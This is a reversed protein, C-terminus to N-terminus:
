GKRAAFAAAERGIEDERGAFFHDAGSVLRLESAGPLGSVFDQLVGAGCFADRDGHVFLKPRSCERLAAPDFMTLPLAVLVLRDVRPDASGAVAAVIAGFSYGCLTVAGAGTEAALFGVAAAADATEAMTDSTEGESAGVGRFNFRLTAVGAESLGRVLGEVVNNDM